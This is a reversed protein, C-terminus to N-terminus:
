KKRPKEPPPKTPDHVEVKVSSKKEKNPTSNATPPKLKEKKTDAIDKRGTKPKADTKKDLTTTSDKKIPKSGEKTAPRSLLGTASKSKQMQMRNNPQKDVSSTRPEM